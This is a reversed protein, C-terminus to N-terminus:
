IEEGPGTDTQPLRDSTGAHGVDYGARSGSEPRSQRTHSRLDGRRPAKLGALKEEAVPYCDTETGVKQRKGAISFRIYYIPGRKM